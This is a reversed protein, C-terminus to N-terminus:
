GEGGIYLINEPAVPAIREPPPNGRVALLIKRTRKKM